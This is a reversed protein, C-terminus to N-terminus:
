EFRVFNHDIQLQQLKISIRAYINSTAVYIVNQRHVNRVLVPTDKTREVQLPLHNAKRLLFYM